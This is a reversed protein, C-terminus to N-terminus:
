ARSLWSLGALPDPELAKLKLGESAKRPNPHPGVEVLRYGYPPRGGMRRGQTTVLAGMGAKVRAQIRSREAESLGGTLLLQLTHISNKPDAVGGIEPVWLSVGANTLMPMVDAVQTGM